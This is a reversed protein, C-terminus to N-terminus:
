LAFPSSNVVIHRLPNTVDLGGAHKVFEAPTLFSGHCVCVIRVEEGKRYKYLFGEVRRGNPGEGQTSVFPMKEMMKREMEKAGNARPGAAKPRARDESRPSLQTKGACSAPPNTATDNNKNSNGASHLMSSRSGQSAATELDATCSICSGQSGISGQSIPPFAVPVDAPRTAAMKLPQAVAWTPRGHRTVGNRTCLYSGGKSGLHVNNAVTQESASATLGKGGSVDEDPNDGPKGSRVSNKRELRKRKAELRKLSQIQKRKRLEEETETPLSSTRTLATASVAPFEPERPLTLFSVVSSSRVLKKGKPDAGFCGGLSLGLSLEIEGTDGETVETPEGVFSNGVFRRLFDRPSKEM